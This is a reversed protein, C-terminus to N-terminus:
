VICAMIEAERGEPEYWSSPQKYAHLFTCGMYFASNPLSRRGEKITGTKSEEGGEGQLFDLLCVAQSGGLLAQLLSDKILFTIVRSM